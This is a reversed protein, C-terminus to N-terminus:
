LLKLTPRKSEPKVRWFVYRWHYMSIKSGFYAIAITVIAEAYGFYMSNIAAQFGHTQLINTLPTAGMGSEHFLEGAFNRMMTVNEGINPTIGVGGGGYESNMAGIVTQNGQQFQTVMYQAVRDLNQGVANYSGLVLYKASGFVALVTGVTWAAAKAVSSKERRIAELLVRRRRKASDKPSKM